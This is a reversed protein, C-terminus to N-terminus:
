TIAIGSVASAPVYDYFVDTWGTALAAVMADQVADRMAESSAAIAAHTLTIVKGSGYALTVETTSAQEVLKVDLVSVLQKQENTVPIKLFKEMIFLLM